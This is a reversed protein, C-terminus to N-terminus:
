FEVKVVDRDIRSICAEIKNVLESDTTAKKMQRLIDIIQRFLRIIDGELLNSLELVSEFKGGMSWNMVLNYVRILDRKKIKKSIQRNDQIAKMIPKLNINETNFKNSRRPEYAISGLFVNMQHVDMKKWIGTYIFEALITEQTYIKSAILGKDTLENDKIFGLKDLRKKLSEFIGKINYPKKFYAFNKKLIESIEEQDHNLVLNLVTNYSLKFQSEIPELDKGTIRKLERINLFRRDIMIISFGIPDLGRRGARGAMQFYEKSKLMRFNIGDYKDITNFCVTKAPMNIGVAFTETAFLVKVLGLNFLHEVIEKHIPLLGAHHFGIGKSLVNKLSKTSNLPKAVETIKSNFYEIVEKKDPKSLFDLSRGIEVAKKQCEKRSFVFYICPVKGENKLQKVLSISEPRRMLRQKKFRKNRGYEPYRDLEFDAELERISCMGLKADFLMHKLPVARKEYVVVEVQHNKIKSIWKAFERANPITASLCLFRVYEPSFIIAEEWITGREVDNIFHIEDFIVYKVESILSDRTILMNRYIETTMILVKGEPNIVVDGTMLGVADKGYEDIFERFKQNSLAKIPATYIIRYNDGIHKNIIYDAILTKGTGTGASVVVSHGRDIAAISDVQFQDLTFQKYRM